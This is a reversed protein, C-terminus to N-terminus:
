PRPLPSYIDSLQENLKKAETTLLSHHDVGKPFLGDFDHTDVYVVNRDELTHKAFELMGCCAAKELYHCTVLNFGLKEVDELEVDPVGSHAFVDPYMKWGKIKESVKKADDLCDIGICLTMDAGLAEAHLCRRISEELGYKLKAETRAIVMCDTGECAKLAAKIKQLWLEEDIVEYLPNDYLTSKGMVDNLKKSYMNREWGRIDTTDDISVASAGALACRRVNYYVSLPANSYGGEFDVILPLPSVHTIRNTALITEEVNMIGIDPVGVMSYALAGSSLLMAKYGCLEVCRASYCDYICPAWIQEGRNLLERLSVKTTGIM